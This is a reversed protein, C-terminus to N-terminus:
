KNYTYTKELERIVEITDNNKYKREVEELSYFSKILVGCGDVVCYKLPMMEAPLRRLYIRWPKGNYADEGDDLIQLIAYIDSMFRDAKEEDDTILLLHGLEHLLTREIEQRPQDADYYVIKKRGDLFGYKDAPAEDYPIVAYGLNNFLKTVLEQITGHIM